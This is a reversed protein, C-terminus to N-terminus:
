AWCQVGQPAGLPGRLFGKPRGQPLRRPGGQADRHSLVAFPLGGLFVTALTYTKGLHMKALQRQRLRTPGLLEGTLPCIDAEPVLNLALSSGASKSLPLYFDVKRWAASLWM